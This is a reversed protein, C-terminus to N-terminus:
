TSSTTTGPLLSFVLGDTSEKSEKGRKEREDEKAVRVRCARAFTWGHTFITSSPGRAKRRRALEFLQSLRDEPDGVGKGRTENRSHRLFSLLLPVTNGNQFCAFVHKEFRDAPSDSLHGYDYSCETEEEKEKKEGKVRADAYVRLVAAHPHARSRLFTPVQVVIAISSGTRSLSNGLYSNRRPQSLSLVM